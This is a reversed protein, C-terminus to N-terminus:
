RKQLQQVLRDTFDVLGTLLPDRALGRYALTVPAPSILPDPQIRIPRDIAYSAAIDQLRAATPLGNARIGAAIQFWQAAEQGRRGRLQVNWAGLLAKTAIQEPSRVPFHALRISPCNQLTLGQISHNGAAIKFAGQDQPSLVAKFSFSRAPERRRAHTIRTIVNSDRPDDRPTPVYTKWEMSFSAPCSRILVRFAAPDSAIFEDADLLFVFASRDCAASNVFRNVIATQTHGLSDDQEVALPLGEDRLALLIETTGDISGNDVFTMHDLFQVNHRVMAEIVDAENKVVSISISRM